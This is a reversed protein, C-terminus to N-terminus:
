WRTPVDQILQLEKLSLHKMFGLFQNMATTSRHFFSVWAKVKKNILTFEESKMAAKACLELVHDICGWWPCPLIKGALKANAATDTTLMTVRESINDVDIGARNKLSEVIDNAINEGTHSEEM